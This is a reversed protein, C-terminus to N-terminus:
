GWLYFLPLIEVMVRSKMLMTEESQRNELAPIAAATTCHGACCCGGTVHVM